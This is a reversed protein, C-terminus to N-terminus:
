ADLTSISPVQRPSYCRLLEYGIGASGSFLGPLDVGPGLEETTLGEQMLIDDAVMAAISQGYEVWERRRCAIGSTLCTEAVGMDGHCLGQGNGLGGAVSTGIAFTLDKLLDEDPWYGFGYAKARALGIGASGNCWSYSFDSMRSEPLRFDPWNEAESDFVVSQWAFSARVVRRIAKILVDDDCVRIFEMLGYAIGSVGHAFGVLPQDDITNWYGGEVTFTFSDLLQRVHPTAAKLLAERMDSHSKALRSLVVVIGAAGSLYDLDNGVVGSTAVLAQIIGSNIPRIGQLRNALYLDGAAGVLAGHSGLEDVSSKQWQHLLRNRLADTRKDLPTVTNLTELFLLIGATGSYLSRDMPCLRWQFSKDVRVTLWSVEKGDDCSLDCIRDAIAKAALLLSNTNIPPSLPTACCIPTKIENGRNVKAARISAATVWLLSARQEHLQGIRSRMRDLPSADFFDMVLIEKLPGRLHTEDLDVQFYPIDGKRLAAVEVSVVTDQVADDSHVRGGRLVDFGIEALSPDFLIDPHWLYSMIQSYEYTHRLLARSSRTPWTTQESVIDIISNHPISALQHIATAFGANIEDEYDLANIPKADVLTPMSDPYEGSLRRRVAHMATTGVCDWTTVEAGAQGPEDGVASFDAHIGDGLDVQLPLLGTSAPSELLVGPVPHTHGSDKHRPIPTVITEVDVVYPTDGFAIINESHLDNAGLLWALANLQGLRYYYRSVDTAQECPVSDIWTMWAYDKYDLTEPVGFDLPVNYDNRLKAILNRLGVATGGPRPKYAIKGKDFTVCAVTRGGQHPDGLRSEVDQLKLDSAHLLKKIEVIDSSLRLAFEIGADRWGILTAETLQALLPYRQFFSVLEDTSSLAHIHHEFWNPVDQPANFLSKAATMDFVFAGTLLRVLGIPPRAFWATAAEAAFTGHAEVSNFGQIRAGDVAPSLLTFLKGQWGSLPNELDVMGGHVSRSRIVSTLWDGTREM